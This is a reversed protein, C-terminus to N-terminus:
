SQSPLSVMCASREEAVVAVGFSGAAHGREATSLNLDPAASLVDISEEFWGMFDLAEHRWVERLPVQELKGIM